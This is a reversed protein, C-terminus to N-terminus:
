INSKGNKSNMNTKLANFYMAFSTYITINQNQKNYKKNNKIRLFYNFPKFFIDFYLSKYM